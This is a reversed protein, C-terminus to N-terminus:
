TEAGAGAAAAAAAYSACANILEVIFPWGALRGAIPHPAPRHQPIPFVVEALLRRRPRRRHLQNQQSLNLVLELPPHNPHNLELGLEM